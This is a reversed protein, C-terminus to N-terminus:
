NSSASYPIAVCQAYVKDAQAQCLSDWEEKSLVTEGGYIGYRNGLVLIAVTNAVPHVEVIEYPNM